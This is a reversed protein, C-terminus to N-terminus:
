TTTTQDNNIKYKHSPLKIHLITGTDEHSEAWIQGGQSEILGRALPLELGGKSLESRGNEDMMVTLEFLNREEEASLVVEAITLVINVTQGEDTATLTIRGTRKINFAFRILNLLAQEIRLVDGWVLPLRHDYIIDLELQPPMKAGFDFQAVNQLIAKLDVSGFDFTIREAEIKSIDVINNILLLLSQASQYIASIDEAQTENLPGEIGELLLESFGLISNLPGRLDHSLHHVELSHGPSDTEKSLKLPNKPMQASDAM